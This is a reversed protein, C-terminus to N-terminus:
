TKQSYAASCAEDTIKLENIGSGPIEYMPEMMIDEMIGRLGRAGTSSEIARRAIARLAEDEFELNCEDFALQRKYQPVLANKPETLIRVLMDEDLQQFATVRPFRGVLEPIMGFSILDRAEVASLLSDKNAIQAATNEQVRQNDLPQTKYSGKNVDVGFGLTKINKRKSVITDLGTFAGAGIFLINTTDIEVSGQQGGGRKKEQISVKTGEVIKLMAQQVGEGSVDRLSGAPMTVARIKDIEDLFVIGQQTREVNFGAEAHLKGIVNEIDDGVYGAQTLSTCDCTVFPVDLLKAFTKVLLTKGTGTPGLLIINSKELELNHMEVDISDPVMESELQPAMESQAVTAGLPNEFLTNNNNAAGAIRLQGNKTENSVHTSESVMDNSIVAKNIINTSKKANHWIRNYHNYGAVSLVKKANAQGIVFKDLEQNIQKPPPPPERVINDIPMNKSASNKPANHKLLFVCNCKGCKLFDRASMGDISQCQCGCNPCYITKDGCDDPPPPPRRGSSKGYKLSCTHFEKKSVIFPTDNNNKVALWENGKLSLASCTSLRGVHANNKIAASQLLLSLKRISRYTM